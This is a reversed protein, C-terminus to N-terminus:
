RSRVPHLGYSGIRRSIGAKIGKDRYLAVLLVVYFAVSLSSLVVFVTM